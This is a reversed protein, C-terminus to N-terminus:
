RFSKSGSLQDKVWVSQACLHDVLKINDDEAAASRSEEARDFGAFAPTADSHKLMGIANPLFDQDGAPAPAIEGINM